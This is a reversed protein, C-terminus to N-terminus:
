VEVLRLDHKGMDGVGQRPAIRIQVIDIHVRIFEDFVMGVVIEAHERLRPPARIEELSAFPVCLKEHMGLILRREDLGHVPFVKGRCQILGSHKFQDVAPDLVPFRKIYVQFGGAHLVVLAQDHNGDRINVLQHALAARLLAYLLLADDVLAEVGEGAIEDDDVDHVRLRIMVAFEARRVVIGLAKLLCLRALVEKLLHPLGRTLIVVRLIQGAEERGKGLLLDHRLDRAAPDEGQAVAEQHIAPRNM